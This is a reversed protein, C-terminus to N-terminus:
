HLHRTATAEMVVEERARSSAQGREWPCPKCGEASPPAAQGLQRALVVDLHAQLLYLPLVLVRGERQRALVVSEQSSIHTLVLSLFVYSAGGCGRMAVSPDKACRVEGMMMGHAASSLVDADVTACYMPMTKVASHLAMNYRTAEFRAELEDNHVKWAQVLSGVGHKSWKENLVQFTEDPVRSLLDQVPPLDELNSPLVPLNHATGRGGGGTPVLRPAQQPPRQGAERDGADGSERRTM